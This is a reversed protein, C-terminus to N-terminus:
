ALVLSGVAQMRQEKVAAVAGTGVWRASWSGVQTLALVYSYSGATGHAPTPTTRTGDPARITLVTTTPDTPTVGGAKFLATLTVTQGVLRDPFVEIDPTSM